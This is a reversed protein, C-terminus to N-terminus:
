RKELRSDGRFFCAKHSSGSSSSCCRGCCCSSPDKHVSACRRNNTPHVTTLADTDLLYEFLVASVIQISTFNNNCAPGPRCTVGVLSLKQKHFKVISRTALRQLANYFTVFRFAEGLALARATGTSGELKRSRENGTLTLTLGYFQLRGLTHQQTGHVSSICLPCLDTTHEIRHALLCMRQLIHPSCSMQTRPSTQMGGRHANTVGHGIRRVVKKMVM